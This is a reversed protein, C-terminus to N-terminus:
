HGPHHRRINRGRRQSDMFTCRHQFQDDHRHTSHLRQLQQRSHVHRIGDPDVATANYTYATGPNTLANTQFIFTSGPTDREAYFLNLTYTKGITLHLTNAFVTGDAKEM